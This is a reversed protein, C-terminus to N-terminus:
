GARGRCHSRNGVATKGEGNEVNQSRMGVEAKAKLIGERM